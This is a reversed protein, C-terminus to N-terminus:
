RLFPQEPKKCVNLGMCIIKQRSNEAQTLDRPLTLDREQSHTQTPMGEDAEASTKGPIDEGRPVTKHHERWLTRAGPSAEVWLDM